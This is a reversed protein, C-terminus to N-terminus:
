PVAKSAAVSPNSTQDNKLKYRMIKGSSTKPLSEAFVIEKPIKFSALRTQCHRQVAHADLVHGEKLVVVARITEGLIEDAIGVVSVEHIAPLELIAEEIEKPSIRHAGSKIMDNKRGVIFLFGENDMTAIDGTHLWGNKLTKLTAEADNWYGLMINGGWAIIQGEEGPGATTGDEREIRIEVGPIAKGISGAKRELDVPDLYTLRATAETQGYMIFIKTQPLCRSLERAHQPPMAGGAQTVYRLAPFYYKSFNSRNLIISFTSPVGAFGTVGLELMRDFIANPYMFSNELVVEGGAMIHTTLLSKGYSYCFPLVAMVRDDSTLGLYEVISQANAVINEHSLMVGKPRGTTGSTYIISALQQLSQQSHKHTSIETSQIAEWTTLRVAAPVKDMPFVRTAPAGIVILQKISSCGRVADLASTALGAEFILTSVACHSVITKIEHASDQFNIDVAVCGARHIGLYSAIYEPTNKSLIGVREGPQMGCNILLSCIKETAEELEGYSVRRKGLTVAIKKPTHRAWRTLYEHIM